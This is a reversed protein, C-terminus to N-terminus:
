KSNDITNATGERVVRGVEDGIFEQQASSIAAATIRYGYTRKLNELELAIRRKADNAQDIEDVTFYRQQM